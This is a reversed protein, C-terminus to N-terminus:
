KETFKRLREELLSLEPLNPAVRRLKAIAQRAESANGLQLNLDALRVYIPAFIPDLKRAAEYHQKAELPRNLNRWLIDAIQMPIEANQPDIRRATELAAIAEEDHELALLANAKAVHCQAINPALAIAREATALAPASENLKQQVLSLTILAPVFHDDIQLARQLITRAKHPQESRNLAIALQNMLSLNDPQYVFAKALIEVAKEPHGEEWFENAMQIQDQLLKTHQYATRSWEDLMPSDSANRGLQLVLEADDPRGLSRYAQGLLHHATKANFDLQVARELHQAAEAPRGKRLEVEGLGAFGRWEDPALEILRRFATEAEDLAGTRPLVAGLRYYGQPFSPFKSILERFIEVAQNLEGLEQAAVGVYM